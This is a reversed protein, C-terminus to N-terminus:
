SINDPGPRAERPGPNCGWLSFHGPQLDRPTHIPFLLPLPFHYGCFPLSPAPPMSVEPGAPSPLPCALERVHCGGMSGRPRDARRPVKQKSLQECALHLPRPLASCSPSRTFLKARIGPCRHSRPCTVQGRQAEGGGCFSLLLLTLRTPTKSFYASQVHLISLITTDLM